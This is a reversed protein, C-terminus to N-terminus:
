KGKCSSSLKRFCSDCSKEKENLHGFGATKKNPYLWSTLYTPYLTSITIGLIATANDTVNLKYNIKTEKTSIKEFKEINGTEKAARLLTIRAEEAIRSFVESSLSAKFKKRWVTMLQNMDQEDSLILLKFKVLRFGFCNPDCLNYHKCEKCQSLLQLVIYVRDYPYSPTFERNEDNCFLIVKHVMTWPSNNSVHSYDMYKLSSSKLKTTFTHDVDSSEMKKLAQVSLPDSKCLKLKRAQFNTCIFIICLM